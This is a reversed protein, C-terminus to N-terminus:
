YSKGVYYRLLDVGYEFDIVIRETLSNDEDIIWNKEETLWQELDGVTLESDTDVATRIFDFWRERDNPHTNGTSPNCLAEWKILKEATEINAIEEISVDSSTLNVTFDNPIYKSVFDNYFDTLIINYLDKGLYSIKRSVINSIWLKTENIAIWITAEFYRTSNAKFCAVRNEDLSINAAYDKSLKKEFSWKNTESAKLKDLLHILSTEDSIIDLDIFKKMIHYHKNTDCKYYGM